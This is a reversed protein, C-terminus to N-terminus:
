KETELMARLAAAAQQEADQASAYLSVGITIGFSLGIFM